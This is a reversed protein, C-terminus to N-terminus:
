KKIVFVKDLHFFNVAPRIKAKQSIQADSSLIEEVLGILLGPPFIGALGSTVISQGSEINEGQPLLTINLNLDNGGEILGTLGSEQILANIRSSQDLILRIKSFSKTTEIVQGVLLNGATIVIFKEQIGDKEGKNILIYEGLGSPERGIINALILEQPQSTSLGIQKKLFQNERVVENLQNVQGLLNEKEKELQHIQNEFQGILFISNTLNKIKFSSQYIVRKGPSSLKFFVDEFTKLWGQQNFFIFILIILFSLVLPHRIFGRMPIIKAYVNIFFLLVM